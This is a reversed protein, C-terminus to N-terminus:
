RRKRETSAPIGMAERYKAVTRRAVRIGEDELISALRSDSLPQQPNEQGILRRLKARIATASCAGGDATQVHSS